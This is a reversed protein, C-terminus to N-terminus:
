GCAVWCLLIIQIAIRSIVDDNGVLILLLLGRVVKIATMTTGECCVCSIMTIKLRFIESIKKLYVANYRKGSPSFDLQFTVINDLAKSM